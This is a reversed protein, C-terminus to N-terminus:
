LPFSPKTRYCGQSYACVKSLVAESRVPCIQGQCLIISVTFWLTVSSWTWICKINDGLAEGYVYVHCREKGVPLQVTCCWLLINGGPWGAQRAKVRDGSPVTM